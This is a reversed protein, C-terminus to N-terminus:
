TVVSQAGFKVDYIIPESDIETVSSAMSQLWDSGVLQISSYTALTGQDPALRVTPPTGDVAQSALDNWFAELAANPDATVLSAEGAYKAQDTLYQYIRAGLVPIINIPRSYWGSSYFDTLPRGTVSRNQAVTREPHFENRMMYEQPQWCYRRSFNGLFTITTGTASTFEGEAGTYSDLSAGVTRGQGADFDFKTLTKSVGTREITVQGTTASATVTWVATGDGTYAVDTATLATAMDAFFGGAVGDLFRTGVPVQATFAVGSLIVDIEWLATTTFAMSFQPKALTM